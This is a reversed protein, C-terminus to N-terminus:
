NFSIEASRVVGATKESLSNSEDRGLAISQKGVKRQEKEARAPACVRKQKERQTMQM